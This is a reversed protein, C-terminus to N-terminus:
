RRGVAHARELDERGDDDGYLALVLGDVLGWPRVRDLAPRPGGQVRVALADRALHLAGLPAAALRHDALPQASSGRRNM